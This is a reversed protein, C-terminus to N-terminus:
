TWFLGCSATAAARFRPSGQTGSGKIAHMFFTETRDNATHATVIRASSRPLGAEACLENALHNAAAYRVERAVNEVNSDGWEASAALATVDVRRVTVPDGPESLKRVFREDADADAGRLQHNVHLVHLRERAIRARGRGDDIDLEGTAALVLLATSDAGGSVM